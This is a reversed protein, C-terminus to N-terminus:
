QSGVAKYANRYEGAALLLAILATIAAGVAATLGATASQLRGVRSPAHVAQAPADGLDPLAHDRADTGPVAEFKM